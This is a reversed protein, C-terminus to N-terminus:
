AFGGTPDPVALGEEDLISQVEAELEDGELEPQVMRVRTRISAAQARHLLDVTEATQRPDDVIGDAFTVKPRFVEHRNGFVERDIVLLIEGEDELAPTWYREKRGRTRLSKGERARVETATVQGGEGAMGFSQASYGSSSIIREWLAVATEAHEQTRIKFEVPSLPPSKDNAPDVGPLGVFVERDVDFTAGQGRGTRELWDGPVVIRAKGLDIDRMWSTYTADLADMLTETGMTDGRGVPQSRRKRNPLVNPVYRVVLGKIGGPLTVVDELGRTSPHGDLSRQVGLQDVDGVYLGHLIVGPEHRELHRWVTNGDRHVERWFTVAKLQGWQFEPVAADAHVVTLLPHDFQERDWVPRLYVGGLGAAVEAGELLTNALGIQGAISQLRDEAEKAGSTASTEHAEPITISPPEGFLLDASTAAIDAAAPVHVRRPNPSTTNTRGWFRRRSPREDGGKPQYHKQLADVDGAYWVAAEAIDAQFPRWSPPPWPQKSDTPLPM